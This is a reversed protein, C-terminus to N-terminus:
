IEWMSEQENDLFMVFDWALSSSVKSDSQQMAAIPAQLLLAAIHGVLKALDEVLVELEHLGRPLASYAEEDHNQEEPCDHLAFSLLDLTPIANELCHAGSGWVHMPRKRGCTQVELKAGLHSSALTGVEDLLDIDVHAGGLIGVSKLFSGLTALSQSRYCKGHKNFGNCYKKKTCVYHWVPAWILCM